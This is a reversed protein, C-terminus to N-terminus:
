VQTPHMCAQGRRAAHGARMPPAAAEDAYQDLLHSCAGSCFVLLSAHTTARRSAHLSGIPLRSRAAAIHGLSFCWFPRLADLGCFFRERAHWNLQLLVLLLM